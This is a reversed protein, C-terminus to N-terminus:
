WPVPRARHPASPPRSGREAVVRARAAKADGTDKLAALVRGTLAQVDPVSFTGAAVPAAPVESVTEM